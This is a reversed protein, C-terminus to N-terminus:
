QGPSDTDLPAVGPERLTIVGDAVAILGEAALDKEAQELRDPDVSGALERRDVRGTKSLARIIV